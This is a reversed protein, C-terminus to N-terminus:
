AYSPTIPTWPVHSKGKGSDSLRETRPCISSYGIFDGVKTKVIHRKDTTAAEAWSFPTISQPEFAEAVNVRGM